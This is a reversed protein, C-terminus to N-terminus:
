GIRLGGNIDYTSGTIYGADDGILFEVLAAVETTTGIRGVHLQALFNPLRDETIRGGMIDTDIVAPAVVNVTVGRPALELAVARSFSIASLRLGGDVARAHPTASVIHAWQTLIPRL